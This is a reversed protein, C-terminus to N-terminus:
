AVVASVVLSVCLILPNPDSRLDCSLLAVNKAEQDTPSQKWNVTPQVHCLILFDGRVPRYYLRGGIPM